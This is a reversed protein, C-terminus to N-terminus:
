LVMRGATQGRRAIALREPAPHCSTLRRRVSTNSPFEARFLTGASSRPRKCNQSIFRGAAGIDFKGRLEIDVGDTQLSAANEYIGGVLIPRALSNPFAADPVDPIVTYGAPIPAGNLYAGLAPGINPPEIVNTKRIFYYDFTASFVKNPEVIAGFTFSDSKEPKINQNAESLSEVAYPLCYAGSHYTPAGDGAPFPAGQGPSLNIFGGAESSGNEAFSPARFGQSYTGRLAFEPIPTFKFGAKPTFANGFDSYHDFRASVDVEFQKVFPFNAEGFAAAVTRSGIAQSVGFGQYTNNPNLQPDNEAEYRLQAGLAVGLPGGALQAAETTASFDIADLDSTSTRANSPSIAAITAASNAAPNLFNYTGNTVASILASGSIFGNITSDLWTHNIVLGTDYDWSGMSGKLDTVLRMNHNFYTSQNQINGFAGEILANEGAAAFPDNPNLAGSPLTAPLAISDTNLPVSSNIPSPPNDVVVKSQFYSAVITATTKDNLAVAFHAAMGVRTQQPQDDGFATRNQTCYNDTAGAIASPASAATTTPGCGNLTQYPGVQTSNLM